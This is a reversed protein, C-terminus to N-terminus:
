DDDSTQQEDPRWGRRSILRVRIRRRLQTPSVHRPAASALADWLERKPARALGDALGLENLEGLVEDRWLLCTLAHLDISRNLRSPRVQVLRCGASHEEVRVAGWWDPVLDLATPLHKAHVALWVRDFVRSYVEEQRPLRRLGDTETKIEWGVLRAPEVVAVDIRAAAQCLALEPIVRRIGGDSTVRTAIATRVDSERVQRDKVISEARSLAPRPADAPVMRSSGDSLEVHRRLIM